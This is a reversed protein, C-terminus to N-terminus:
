RFCGKWFNQLSMNYILVSSRLLKDLLRTGLLAMNYIVNSRSILRFYIYDILAEGRTFFCKWSMFDVLCLRWYEISSLELVVKTGTFTRDFLLCMRYKSLEEMKLKTCRYYWFNPISMSRLWHFILSFQRTICYTLKWSTEIHQNVRSIM